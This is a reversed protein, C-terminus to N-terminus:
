AKGVALGPPCQVNVNVQDGARVSVTDGPITCQWMGTWIRPPTSTVTGVVEYLGPHDVGVSFTGDTATPVGSPIPPGIQRVNVLAVYGTVPIGPRSGGTLVLTGSVVGKHKGPQNFSVPGGVPNSVWNVAVVVAFAALAFSATAIVIVWGRRIYMGADHRM